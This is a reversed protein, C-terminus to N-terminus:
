KPLASDFPVCPDGDFPLRVTSEPYRVSKGIRVYRPGKGDARLAELTRTSVGLVDAAEATTLYALPADKPRAPAEAPASRLARALEATLDAQRRACEALDALVDSASRTM